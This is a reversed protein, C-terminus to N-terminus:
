SVGELQFAGVDVGDLTREFQGVQTLEIIQVPQIQFISRNSGHYRPWQGSFFGEKGGDRFLVNQEMMGIGLIRRNCAENLCRSPIRFHESYLNAQVAGTAM